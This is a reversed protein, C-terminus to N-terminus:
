CRVWGGQIQNGSLDLLMLGGLKFFGDPLAKIANNALNMGKMDTWDGVEEAVEEIKNGELNLVAVPGAARGRGGQLSPFRAVMKKPFKKMDNGKLSCKTIDYEKLVLFIADTVYM